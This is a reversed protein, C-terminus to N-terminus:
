QEPRELNGGDEDILGRDIALDIVKACDSRSLDYANSAIIEIEEREVPFKRNQLLRMVKNFELASISTRVTRDVQSDGTEDAGGVGDESATEGEGDVSETEDEMGEIAGEDEQDEIAAKLEEDGTERGDTEDATAAEQDETGTEDDATGENEASEPPTADGDTSERETSSADALPDDPAPQDDITPEEPSTSGSSGSDADGDLPEEPDPDVLIDSADSGAEIHEADSDEPSDPATSQGTTPVGAESGPDSRDGKSLADDGADVTDLVTELKRHCTPCLTVSAGAGGTGLLYTELPEDLAIGCFYCSSLSDM